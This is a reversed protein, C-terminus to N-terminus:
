LSHGDRERGRLRRDRHGLRPGGFLNLWTQWDEETQNWGAFRTLRAGAALDAEQMLRVLETM